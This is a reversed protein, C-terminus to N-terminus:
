AQLCKNVYIYIFTISCVFCYISQGGHTSYRDIAEPAEFPDLSRGKGPWTQSKESFYQELHPLADNKIGHAM